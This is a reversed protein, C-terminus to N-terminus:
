EFIKGSCYFDQKKRKINENSTITEESNVLLTFTFFFLILSYVSVNM